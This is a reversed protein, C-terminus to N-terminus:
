DSSEVKESECVCRVPFLRFDEEKKPKLHHKHSHGVISYPTIHMHFKEDDTALNTSWFDIFNGGDFKSGEIRGYAKINLINSEFINYQDLFDVRYLKDNEDMMRAMEADKFSKTFFDWDDMTPLKWGEPCVDELYRYDYFRIQNCDDFCVSGEAAYRLNDKMWYLDGLKVIEYQNGDRTDILPQQGFSSFGILVLLLSFNHPQTRM